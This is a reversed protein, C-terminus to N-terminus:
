ATVTKRNRRANSVLQCTRCWRHGRDNHRTNEVTYGHGRPCHTKDAQGNDTANALNSLPRLHAPNCCRRTRCIHDITLGPPIPGVALTYAVRHALRVSIGDWTQGYGHNGTSKLWLWCADPEVDSDVDAWWDRRSLWEVNIPPGQLFAM